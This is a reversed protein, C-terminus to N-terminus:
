PNVRREVSVYGNIESGATSSVIFAVWFQRQQRPILPIRIPSSYASWTIETGNNVSGGQTEFVSEQTGAWASGLTVGRAPGYTIVARVEVDVFSVSQARRVDFLFNWPVSHDFPGTIFSFDTDGSFFVARRM